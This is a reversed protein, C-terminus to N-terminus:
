FVVGPCAAGNCYNQGLNVGGLVAPNGPNNGRFLNGVYSGDGIVLGASINGMAVNYDATGINVLIGFARNRSANSHSVRGGEIDIGGDNLEATCYQVITLQAPTRSLNFRALNIGNHGNSRVHLYELLFSDGNMSVGAHGMGQITGNRITINFYVHDALTEIGNGAGNASCVGSSCDNPGLISFGGLDLTVFDVAIRIAAKNPDTVLLNGSLKYSGPQSIVYPFGGAANVTAQNILVQGDAGWVCAPLLTVAFVALTQKIM